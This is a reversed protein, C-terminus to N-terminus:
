YSLQHSQFPNLNGTHHLFALILYTLYVLLILSFITILMVDLSLSRLKKHYFNHIFLGLALLVSAILGAIVLYKQITTDKAFVKDPSIADIIAFVLCNFINSGLLHSFGANFNKMYFLGVVSIIEPLSTTIGLFLSAGFAKNMGVHNIISEATYTLGVSGGALCLGCTAFLVIAQTVTLRSKTTRNFEESTTQKTM